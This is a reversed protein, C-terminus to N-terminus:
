FTSAPNWLTWPMVHRTKATTARLTSVPPDPFSVMVTEGDRRIKAPYSLM